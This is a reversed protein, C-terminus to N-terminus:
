SFEADGFWSKVFTFSRGFVHFLPLTYLISGLVIFYIAIPGYKNIIVKFTLPNVTGVLLCLSASHICFCSEQILQRCSVWRLFPVCVSQIAPFLYKVCISVLLFCSYCYEDSLISKLIFAMFLSLSPCQM